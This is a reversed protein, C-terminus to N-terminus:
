LWKTLKKKSIPQPWEGTLTKHLHLIAIRM